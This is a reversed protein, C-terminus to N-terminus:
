GTLRVNGIGGFPLRQLGAHILGDNITVGGSM